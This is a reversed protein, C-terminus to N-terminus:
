RHKYYYYEPFNDMIDELIKFEEVKENKLEVSNDYAKIASDDKFMNQIPREFTYDLVNQLSPTFDTEASDPTLIGITALFGDRLSQRNADKADELSQNLVNDMHRGSDYAELGYGAKEKQATKYNEVIQNFEIEYLTWEDVPKSIDPPNSTTIKLNNIDSQDTLMFDSEDKPMDKFWYSNSYAWKPFSPNDFVGKEGEYPKDINLQDYISYQINVSDPITLKNDREDKQQQLKEWYDLNYVMPMVDDSDDYGMQVNYGTQPNTYSVDSWGASLSIKNELDGGGGEYFAKEEEYREEATKLGQLVSAVLGSTGGGSNGSDSVPKKPLSQVIKVLKKVDEVADEVWEKPDEVFDEVEDVAKAVIKKTDNYTQEAWDGVDEAVEVVIKKTNNYTKEVWDEVDDAAEELLDGVVEAKEKIWSGAKEFFNKEEEEIEKATKGAQANKTSASSEKDDEDDFISKVWTFLGM